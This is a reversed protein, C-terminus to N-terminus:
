DLKDADLGSKTKTYNIIDCSVVFSIDSTFKVQSNNSEYSEM